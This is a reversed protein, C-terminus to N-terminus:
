MYLLHLVSGYLGSVAEDNAKSRHSTFIGRANGASQMRLWGSCNKPYHLLPSPAAKTYACSFNYVSYLLRLFQRNELSTHLALFGRPSPAGAYLPRPLVPTCCTPRRALGPSTCSAIAIIGNLVSSLWPVPSKAGCQSRSVM